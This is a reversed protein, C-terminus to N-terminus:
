KDYFIFCQQAILNFFKTASIVREAFVHIVEYDAKSM